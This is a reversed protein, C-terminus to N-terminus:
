PQSWAQLAEVFAIRSEPSVFRFEGAFYQQLVATPGQATLHAVVDPAVGSQELASAFIADKTLPAIERITTQPVMGNRASPAGRRAGNNPRPRQPRLHVAVPPEAHAHDGLVNCPVFIYGDPSVDCLFHRDEWHAKTALERCAAEHNAQTSLAPDYRTYVAQGRTFTWARIRAPLTDTAPVHKTLILM